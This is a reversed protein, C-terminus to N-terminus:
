IFCNHWKIGLDFVVSNTQTPSQSFHQLVVQPPPSELLALLPAAEPSALRQRRLNVDFTATMIIVTIIVSALDFISVFPCYSYSFDLLMLFFVHVLDLLEGCILSSIVVREV